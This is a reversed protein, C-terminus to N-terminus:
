YVKVINASKIMSYNILYYNIWNESSLEKSRVFICDMEPHKDGFQFIRYTFMGHYQFKDGIFFRQNDKSTFLYNFSSVFRM